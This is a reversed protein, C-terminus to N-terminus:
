IGELINLVQICKRYLFFSYVICAKIGVKGKELSFWELKLHTSNKHSIIDRKQLAKRQVCIWFNPPILTNSVHSVYGVGLTKLRDDTRM